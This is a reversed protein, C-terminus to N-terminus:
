QKILKRKTWDEPAASVSAPWQELSRSRGQRLAANAVGEGQPSVVFYMGETSEEPALRVRYLGDVKSISAPLESQGLLKGGREAELTVTGTDTFTFYVTRAGGQFKWTGTLYDDAGDGCGALAVSALLALLSTTRFADKM